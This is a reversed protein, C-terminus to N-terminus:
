DLVGPVTKIELGAGAAEAGARLCRNVRFALDQMADITKARMNYDVLVHDSVLNAADSPRDAIYPKGSLISMGSCTM